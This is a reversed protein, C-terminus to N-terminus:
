MGGILENNKKIKDINKKESHIFCSHDKVRLHSMPGVPLFIFSTIASWSVLLVWLNWGQVPSRPFIKTISKKKNGNEM